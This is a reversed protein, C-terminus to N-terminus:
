QLKPGTTTLKDNKALKQFWINFNNIFKIEYKYKKLYIKCCMAFINM